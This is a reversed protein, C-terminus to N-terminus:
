ACTSIPMFIKPCVAIRPTHELEDLNKGALAPPRWLISDCPDHARMRNAAAERSNTAYCYTCGFMCTDYSGIDVSAVCGCEKRTPANKLQGLNDPRLNQIVNQDVCHAKEVGEGM